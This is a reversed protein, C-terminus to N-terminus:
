HVIALRFHKSAGRSWLNCAVPIFRDLGRVLLTGPAFLYGSGAPFTTCANAGAGGGAAAWAGPGCDGRGRGRDVFFPGAAARRRGGAATSAHPRGRFRRPGGAACAGGASRGPLVPPTVELPTTLAEPPRLVAGSE